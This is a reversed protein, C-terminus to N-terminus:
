HKVSILNPDDDDHHKQCNCSKGRLVQALTELRTFNCPAWKVLYDIDNFTPRTTKMKMDQQFRIKLSKKMKNWVELYFFM